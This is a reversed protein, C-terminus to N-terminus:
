DKPAGHRCTRDRASLPRVVIWRGRAVPGGGDDEGTNERPSGLGMGGRARQLSAWGTNQSSYRSGAPPLPTPPAISVTDYVNAFAPKNWSLPNSSGGASDPSAARAACAARLSQGARRIGSTNDLTVPASLKTSSLRRNSSCLALPALTPPSATKTQSCLKM